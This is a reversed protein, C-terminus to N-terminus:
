SEDKYYIKYYKRGDQEVGQEILQRDGHIYIHFNKDLKLVSKFVREQKKVAKPSIEFSDALEIDNTKRYASDFNSFSKIIETDQFVEEEFEKKDFNEHNKFYGVSRNLFDIKDAKSLEFEESIQKTVFNKTINMFEKTHHYDDCCSKLQLFTDKWYQAEVSKNSKDVICIKYGSDKDTNLILCGKDLKDINIGDDYQIIFDEESSDLKLFSQRNESKFIGIADISRDEFKIDSLYAIFLDGSKIQPHISLEYLHKAVNVSNEYLSKATNFIQSTFNFLPNLTFDDNTFSFSYFEPDSFPSLFFKLLLERVKLGSTNLLSKSLRLEEGNTKNGISHVAVAEINSNTYDIM